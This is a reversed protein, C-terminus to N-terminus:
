LRIGHSGTCDMLRLCIVNNDHNCQELYEVDYKQCNQIRQATSVHPLVNEIRYFLYVVQLEYKFM